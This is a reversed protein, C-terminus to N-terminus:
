ETVLQKRAMQFTAVGVQPVSLDQYVDNRGDVQSFGRFSAPVLRCVGFGGRVGDRGFAARAAALREESGGTRAGAGAAVFPALGASAGSTRNPPPQPSPRCRRERGALLRTLRAGGDYDARSRVRSVEAGGAVGCFALVSSSRM